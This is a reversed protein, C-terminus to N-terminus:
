QMQKLGNKHLGTVRPWRTWQCDVTSQIWCCCYNPPSLSRQPRHLYVDVSWWSLPEDTGRYYYTIDQGHIWSNTSTFHSSVTPLDLWGIVRIIIPRIFHAHPLDDYGLPKMHAEDELRKLYPARTKHEQRNADHSTRYSAETLLTLSCM